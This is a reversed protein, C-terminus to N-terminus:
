EYGDAGNTEVDIKEPNSGFSKEGLLIGAAEISHNLPILIKGERGHRLLHAHERIDYGFIGGHIGDGGKGSAAAAAAGGPHKRLELGEVHSFEAGVLNDAANAPRTRM